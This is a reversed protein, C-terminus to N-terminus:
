SPEPECVFEQIVMDPRRAHSKTVAQWPKSYMKPDDITVAYELSRGDESLTFREITHLADSHPHGRMDLWTRDDYGVTDVVLTRGEWHGISHGLWTPDLAKPHEAGIFVRRVMHDYEMLFYVIKPTQVVEFPFALNMLRPIGPPECQVLPDHERDLEDFIKRAAPLMPASEALSQLFRPGWIGSIDPPQQAANEGHRASAAAGWRGTLLAAAAIAVSILVVIGAKRM